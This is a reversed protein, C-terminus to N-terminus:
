HQQTKAARSGEKILSQRNVAVDKKELAILKTWNLKQKEEEM